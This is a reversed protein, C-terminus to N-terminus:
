GEPPRLGAVIDAVTAAADQQLASIANSYIDLTM